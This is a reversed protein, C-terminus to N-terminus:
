YRRRRSGIIVGLLVALAPVGAIICIVMVTADRLRENKPEEAEPPAEEWLNIREFTANLTMDKKVEKGPPSGVWGTFEYRFQQIADKQPIQNPYTLPSGAEVQQEFFVTGDVLYTVTYVRKEPTFSATFRMHSGSATMGVTYGQWGAFTYHYYTDSVKTPDSPMPIASGKEVWIRHHVAGDAEFTIECVREDLQYRGTVQGSATVPTGASASWGLFTYHERTPADPLTMPWGSCYTRVTYLAGDLEYRVLHVGVLAVERHYGVDSELQQCFGVRLASGVQQVCYIETMERSTHLLATRGSSLSYGHIENPLNYILLDGIVALDYFKAVYVDTRNPVRWEARPLTHIPQTQLTDLDVRVISGDYVTYTDGDVFVFSSNCDKRWFARDYRQDTAPYRAYAEFYTESHALRNEAESLLFYEYMTVRNDNWTVDVHYWEGDLRVMSWVHLLEDSYSYSVAIGCKKALLNFLSTYAECVGEGTQLMEYATRYETQLGYRFHDCIYDNLWLLKQLDSWSEDVASLIKDAEANLWEYRMKVTAKDDYKLIVSVIMNGDRSFTYEFGHSLCFSVDPNEWRFAQLIEGIENRPIQYHHLDVEDEGALIAERIEEYIEELTADDNQASVGCVFLCTCLMVFCLCLLIRKM